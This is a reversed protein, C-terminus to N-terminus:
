FKTYGLGTEYVYTNVQGGYKYNTCGDIAILQENEFTRTDIIPNLNGDEDEEDAFGTIRKEGFHIAIRYAHFHGVILKKDPYRSWVIEELTDTNASTARVWERVNAERWKVLNPVWAHVAILKDFEVAWCSEEFYQKLLDYVETTKIYEIMDNYQEFKKGGCFSELTAPVKNIADNITFPAHGFLQHLRFDHNGWVLIRKPCSMLFKLVELSDPGRDFADGLSVITDTDKNFNAANLAEILKNYEGHIDSVFVYRM